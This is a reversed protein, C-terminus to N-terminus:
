RGGPLHPVLDADPDVGFSPPTTAVQDYRGVAFVVDMLRWVEM